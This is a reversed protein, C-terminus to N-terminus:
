QLDQTVLTTKSNAIDLTNRAIERLQQKMQEQQALQQQLLAKQASLEAAAARSQLIASAAESTGRAAAGVAQYQRGAGALANQADAIDDLVGPTKGAEGNLKAWDEEAKELMSALSGVEATTKRAANVGAASAAAAGIEIKDFAKDVLSLAIVSAGVAGLLVAWGKPGSLAQVIAMGAAISRLMKVLAAGAAILKPIVFLAATFAAVAAVIKAAMRVSGITVGGIWAALATLKVGLYEVVPAMRVAITNSLGEFAQWMRTLADKAAVIKAAMAPGVAQGTQIAEKRVNDLAASGLNLMNILRVGESDFLKFALRVKDSPDKVKEMADAIKLLAEYPGATALSQASLGLEIIADQAEGTAAAAESVRRTMRQLAMDLTSVKVGSLDAANRLGTLQDISLGLRESVKSTEDLRNFAGTLSRIAGVVGFTVGALGALRAGFSTLSRLSSQVSTRFGRTAGKARDLGRTYGATRAIVNVAIEGAVAM